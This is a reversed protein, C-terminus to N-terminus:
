FLISRHVRAIQDATVRYVGAERPANPRTAIRPLVTRRITALAGSEHSLAQKIEAELTEYLRALDEGPLWTGLDLMRQLSESFTNRFEEPAFLPARGPMAMGGPVPGDNASFATEVAPEESSPARHRIRESMNRENGHLEVRKAEYGISSPRPLDTSIRSPAPM